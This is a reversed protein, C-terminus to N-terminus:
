DEARPPAGGPAPYPPTRVFLEKACMGIFLTNTVLYRKWMRRPEQLVRYLWELGLRQWSRPARKVEGSLVDFSGGVGHCVRVGLNRGWRGLFREKKPSTIGVFLYDAGSRRIEEAVAAEDAEGFYGDRAGAIRLRPHLEALRAILRDLVDRRAGLLYVSRGDREACEILRSFLDIGAVREPLSRGLLRSAWVVAMGDALVLDSGVVSDRLLPDARMKVLKAANVVGITLNDGREVAERCREVTEGMTLPHIPVGFLTRARLDPGIATTV